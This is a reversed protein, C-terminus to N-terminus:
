GRGDQRAAVNGFYGSEGSYSETAVYMAALAIAVLCVHSLRLGVMQRFRRALRAPRFDARLHEKLVPM